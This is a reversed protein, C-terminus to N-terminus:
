TQNHYKINNIRQRTFSYLSKLFRKEKERQLSLVIKCFFCSFFRSKKRLRERLREWKECGNGFLNRQKKNNSEHFILIKAPANLLFSFSIHCFIYGDHINCPLQSNGLGGNRTGQRSIRTIHLRFGQLLYQCSGLPHAIMAVFQSHVKALLTSMVDADDDGFDDGSEIHSKDIISLGDQALLPILYHNGDRVLIRLLLSLVNQHHLLQTHIADQHTCTILLM